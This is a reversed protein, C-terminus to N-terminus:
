DRWRSGHEAEVDHARMRISVPKLEETRLQRKREAIKGFEVRRAHRLVEALSGTAADREEVLAAM